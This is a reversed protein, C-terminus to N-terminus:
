KKLRRNNIYDLFEQSNKISPYYKDVTEKELIDTDFLKWDNRELEWRVWQYKFHYDHNWRHRELWILLNVVRICEENDKFKLWELGPIKFTEKWTTKDIDIRFIEWADFYYLNHRWDEYRFQRLDERTVKIEFWKIDYEWWILKVDSASLKKGSPLEFHSIYKDIRDIIQESPKIKGDIDKAMHYNNKKRLELIREKWEQDFKNSNEVLFEFEVWLDMAKNIIDVHNIGSFHSINEIVDKIYWWQILIDAIEKDLGNFYFINKAVHRTWWRQILTKAIKKGLWPFRNINEWFLVISSKYERGTNLVDHSNWNIFYRAVSEDFINNKNYLLSRFISMIDIQKYKNEICLKVLENATIGTFKKFNKGVFEWNKNKVLLIALNKDCFFSNLHSKVAEIYWKKILAAAVESDLRKYNDLYNVVLWIDGKKIFDKAEKNWKPWGQQVEAQLQSEERSLEEMTWEYMEQIEADNYAIERSKQTEVAKM